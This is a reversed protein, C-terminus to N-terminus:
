SEAPPHAAGRQDGADGAPLVLLSCPSRTMLAQLVRARHSGPDGDWTAIVLDAREATVVDLTGEAPPGNVLEVAVSVGSSVPCFRRM